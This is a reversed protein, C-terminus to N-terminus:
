EDSVAFTAPFPWTGAKIERARRKIQRKIQTELAGASQGGAGSMQKNKPRAKYEKANEEAVIRALLAKNPEPKMNDFRWLLSLNSMWRQDTLSTPRQMAFIRHAEATGHKDRILEWLERAMKECGDITDPSPWPRAPPLKGDGFLDSVGPNKGM